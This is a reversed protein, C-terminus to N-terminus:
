HDKSRKTRKKAFKKRKKASRRSRSRLLRKDDDHPRRVSWDDTTGPGDRPDLMRFTTTKNGIRRLEVGSSLDSFRVKNRSKTSKSPSSLYGEEIWSKFSNEPREVLM